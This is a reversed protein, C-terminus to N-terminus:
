CADLFFYTGAQRQERGNDPAVTSVGLSLSWEDFDPYCKWSDVVEVVQEYTITEQNQLEAGCDRREVLRADYSRGNAIDDARGIDLFLKCGGKWTQPDTGAFDVKATFAVKHTDVVKGCLEISVASPAGSIATKCQETAAEASTAGTLASAAVLTALSVIGALRM